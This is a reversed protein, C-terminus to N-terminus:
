TLEICLRPQRLLFFPFRPAVFMRSLTLRTPATRYIRVAGRAPAPSDRQGIRRRPCAPLRDADGASRGSSERGSAGAANYMPGSGGARM